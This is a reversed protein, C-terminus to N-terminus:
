RSWFKWWARPRPEGCLVYPTSTGIRKLVADEPVGTLLNNIAHYEPSRKAILLVVDKDEASAAANTAARFYPDSAIEHRTEVGSAENYVIFQEAYEKVMPLSDYHTRSFALPVLAFLRNALDSEIGADVLRARLGDDSETQFGRILRLTADVAEAPSM